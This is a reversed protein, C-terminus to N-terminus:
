IDRGSVRYVSASGTPLGFMCRNTRVKLNYWGTKMRYTEFIHYGLVIWIALSLLVAAHRLLPFRLKTSMNMCYAAVGALLTMGAILIGELLYQDRGQGAFISLGKRTMGFLPASKIVCFISGSVGVAFCIQLIGPV